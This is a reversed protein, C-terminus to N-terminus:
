IMADPSQNLALAKNIANLYSKISAELIDTSLGRGTVLRGNCIIKSVAEGLADEGETVAQITWNELTSTVKVIRDIAKFAADIPGEGRAVHEFEEGTDKVLRVVATASIVTGCNIVYSGLRYIERFAQSSTGILLAEIDRDGVEKKRGALVQFRGFAEELDSESLAYGMERIRRAFADRGTHRDLVINSEHIGVLEPSLAEPGAAQKHGGSGFANAGVIPKNPAIPLGTITSLMKCSRYIERCDIGTECEYFARRTHLAMVVEELPANGAREGIGGVTCEVQDAGARICELTNAVAMGLDNHAHAALVVHPNQLSGRVFAILDYLEAPSSYGATDPLCITSVGAAVATDLIRILFDRDARTADEATFAVDPCLGKAFRIMSATREVAEAQKIGQSKLLAGSTGLFLNLRPTRAERLADWARKIDSEVCRALACVRANKVAQAINRVADFDDPSSIPYGAEIVDVGLRDLQRAMELKERLNMGCGPSQEGDCLTSDQILIKRMFLEGGKNNEVPASLPSM